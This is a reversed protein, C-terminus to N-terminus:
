ILKKNKKTTLLSNLYQLQKGNGKHALPCKYSKFLKILGSYYTKGCLFLASESKFDIDLQLLQKYVKSNWELLEKKSLSSLYLDYPEIVTDLEVVGYKASLIYIATINPLSKAYLLSKKFLNGQYMNEAKCPVKQKTKSCGLFCIM